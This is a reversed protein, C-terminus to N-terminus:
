TTISFKSHLCAYLAYTTTWLYRWDTCTMYVLTYLCSYTHLVVAQRSHLEQLHDSFLITSRCEGRLQSTSNDHLQSTCPQTSSAVEENDHRPKIVTTENKDDCQTSTIETEITSENKASLNCVIHSSSTSVNHEMQSPTAKSIDYCVAEGPSPTKPTINEPPPVILLSEGCMSKNCKLATLFKSFASPSMTLSQQTLASESFSLHFPHSVDAAGLGLLMSSETNQLEPNQELPAVKPTQVLVSDDENKEANARLNEVTNRLLLMELPKTTAKHHHLDSLVETGSPPKQTVSLFPSPLIDKSMEGVQSSVVPMNSQVTVDEASPSHCSEPSSCILSFSGDITAQLWNDSTTNGQPIATEDQHSLGTEAPGDNDGRASPVPKGDSLCDSQPEGEPKSMLHSSDNHASSTSGQHCGEPSTTTNQVTHSPLHVVALPHNVKHTPRPKSRLQSYLASSPGLPTPLGPRQTPLFSPTCQPTRMVSSAVILPKGVSRNQLQNAKYSNPPFSPPKFQGVMTASVTTTNVTQSSTVKPNNSTTVNLDTSHKQVEAKGQEVSGGETNMACSQLQKKSDTGTHSHMTSPHLQNTAEDSPPSGLQQKEESSTLVETANKSMTDEVCTMSMACSQYTTLQMDMDTDDRSDFLASLHLQNPAPAKGAGSSSAPDLKHQSEAPSSGRNECVMKSSPYLARLMSLDLTIKSAELGLSTADEPLARGIDTLDMQDENADSIPAPNVRNSTTVANPQPEICTLSMNSDNMTALQAGIDFSMAMESQENSSLPLADGCSGTNSEVRENHVMGHQSCPLSHMKAANLLKDPSFLSEHMHTEKPTSEILTLEMDSTDKSPTHCPPHSEPIGSANATKKHPFSSLTPNAGTSFTPQMAGHSELHELGYPLESATVEATCFDNLTAGTFM